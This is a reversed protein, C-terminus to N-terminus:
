YEEIVITWMQETEPDTGIDKPVLGLDQFGDRVPKGDKGIGFLNREFRHILHSDRMSQSVTPIKRMHYAETKRHNREKQRREEYKADEVADREAQIRAEREIVDRTMTANKYIELPTRKHPGSLHARAGSSRGGGGHLRAISQGGAPASRPIRLSGEKRGAVVGAGMELLSKFAPKKSAEKGSDGRQSGLRREKSLREEREEDERRQRKRSAAAAGGPRRRRAVAQSAKLKRETEALVKSRLGDDPLISAATPKPKAKQEAIDAPRETQMPRPINRLRDQHVMPGGAQQEDPRPAPRLDMRQHQQQFPPPGRHGFLPGGSVGGRAHSPGGMQHPAPANQFPRRGPGGGTFSSFSPGGRGMGGGGGARGGAGRGGGGFGGGFGGRSSPGGSFSGFSLSSQKQVPAASPKTLDDPEADSEYAAPYEAAPVDYGDDDDLRSGGYADDDGDSFASPAPSPLADGQASADDDDLLEDADVAYSM